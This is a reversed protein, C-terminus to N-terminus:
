SLGYDTTRMIETWIQYHIIEIRNEMVKIKPLSNNIM